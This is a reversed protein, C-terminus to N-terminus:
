KLLEESSQAGGTVTWSLFMMSFVQIQEEKDEEEQNEILM